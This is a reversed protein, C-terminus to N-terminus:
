WSCNTKARTRLRVRPEERRRNCASLNPVQQSNPIMSQLLSQEGAYASASVAATPGPQRSIVDPGHIIQLQAVFRISVEKKQLGICVLDDGVLKHM